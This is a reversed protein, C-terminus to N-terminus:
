QKSRGYHWTIDHMLMQATYRRLRRPEYPAPYRAAALSEGDEPTVTGNQLPYLRVTGDPWHAQLRISRDPLAAKLTVRGNPGAWGEWAFGSRRQWWRAYDGLSHVALNRRRVEQFVKEFVALRQQGPHHYFFVPENAQQKEEMVRLYYAAMGAESHRAWHLRGVSIPHVPVQLVKSFQEGLLPYFPLNDCGLSFESSYVFGNEELVRNLEPHWEGYPAAYGQPCVGIGALRALGQRFDERGAAADSLVRHRYCHYAIEQGPMEGYLRFWDGPSRTELFWTAPMEFRECLQQLARVEAENGFDTDIRFGFLGQAGDPFPWLQLFPLGRAHFLLALARSVVRRIGEASVAAVRESPLREGFPSPFNKRRVRRDQLAGILGSPLIIALGKGVERREILGQGAQSQLHASSAGIRCRRNLDSVPLNGFSPDNIGYFYGVSITRIPIGLLRRATEAELLLAGGQELFRRLSEHTDPATGAGAIWVPIEAARPDDAGNLSHFGVGIQRLLLEWEPQAAIIGVSLKM